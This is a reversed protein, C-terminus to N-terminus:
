DISVIFFFDVFDENECADYLSGYITRFRHAKEQLKLAVNEDDEQIRMLRKNCYLVVMTGIPVGIVYVFLFVVMALQATAHDGEHCVVSYDATLYWKEGIRRCKFTTFVRTCIGPYLLFVITVLVAKARSWIVLRAKNFCSAVSAATLIILVCIPLIAMHFAAQKLFPTHLICPNIPAFLDMFNFNMFTLSKFLNKTMPPWPIDFSFILAATIQLYGILIRIRNGVSKFNNTNIQIDITLADGTSGTDAGIDGGATDGTTEATQAEIRGDIEGQIHDHITDQIFTSSILPARSITQIAIIKHLAASSRFRSRPKTKKTASKSTTPEDQNNNNNSPAVPMVNSTQTSERTPKSPLADNTAASPLNSPKSNQKRKPSVRTNNKNGINNPKKQRYKRKSNNTKNSQKKKSGTQHNEMEAKQLAEKLSISAKALKRVAIIKKGASRFHHNARLSPPQPSSNTQHNANNSSSSAFANTAIKNITRAAIIKYGASRLKKIAEYKEDEKARYFYVFLFVFLLFPPLTAVVVIGNTGDTSIEPPCKTCMDNQRIYGKVCVACLIGTNGEVCQNNLLGGQCDNANDCEEFITTANNERYYGQAAPITAVTLGSTNEHCNTKLTECIVCDNNTTSNYYGAQCVCASIHINGTTQDTTTKTPCKFCDAPSSKGYEMSYTDSDCELCHILGKDNSYKGSKCNSCNGPTSGYKGLDCGSCM